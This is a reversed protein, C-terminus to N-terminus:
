LRDEIRRVRYIVLFAGSFRGNRPIDDLRAYRRSTEDNNFRNFVEWGDETRVAAFTHLGKDPRFRRNWIVMLYAEGPKASGERAERRLRAPTVIRSRVSYRRLLPEFYPAAGLHGGMRLYGGREMDRIIDALPRPRDLLRLVNYVAISECGARGVDAYGFRLRSLAPRSQGNLMGRSDAAGTMDTRRNLEFNSRVKRPLIM